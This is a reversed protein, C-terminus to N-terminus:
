FGSILMDLAIGIVYEDDVLSAVPSRLLNAPVVAAFHTLMVMKEGVIDFEPNLRRDALALDHERNALPVVFRSNLM